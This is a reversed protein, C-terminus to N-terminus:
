RLKGKKPWIWIGELYCAVVTAVFALGMGVGLVSVIVTTSFDLFERIWDVPVFYLGLLMALVIYTLSAWATICFQLYKAITKNEM